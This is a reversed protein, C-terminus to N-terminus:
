RRTRSRWARLLRERAEVRIGVDHPGQRVGEVAGSTVEEGLPDLRLEVTAPVPQSGDLPLHVPGEQAEGAQGVPVELGGERRADLDAPPQCRLRLGVPVRRFGGTLRQTEAKLDDAQPLDHGQGGDTMLARPPHHLPEPHAVVRGLIEIVCGHRGAIWVPAV